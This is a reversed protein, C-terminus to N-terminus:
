IPRSKMGILPKRKITSVNCVCMCRSFTITVDTSRRPRSFLCYYLKLIGKSDVFSPDPLRFDGDGTPDLPLSATPPRSVFGTLTHPSLVGSAPLM